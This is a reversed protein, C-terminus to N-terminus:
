WRSREKHNSRVAARPDSSPYFIPPEQASAPVGQGTISTAKVGGQAQASRGGSPGVATQVGAAVLQPQGTVVGAVAIGAGIGPKIWKKHKSM